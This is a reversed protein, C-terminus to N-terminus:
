VNVELSVRMKTIKGLIEKKKELSCILWRYGGGHMAKPNEM